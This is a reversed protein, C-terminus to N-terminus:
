GGLISAYEDPTSLVEVAKKVYPDTKLVVNEYVASEGYLRTLIDRKIGRKIFDINEDFDKKKEAKIKERINAFDAAYQDKTGNEETVKEMEELQTELRSKYSFDTDELFQRFEEVMENTVTFDAPINPHQTTYKISFDFFTSLRELNMELQNFEERDVTIDPTIGGGGYVIRGGKTHFIELESSDVPASELSELEEQSKIRVSNVDKQICRGSPVYWKATTLKLATGESLQYVQQVLGKGFTTNGIIVGRDSDQIAGAVIESASASMENVLVVMPVDPIEPIQTAYHDRNQDSNRGKTYVVETGQPLFDNAVKVAQNLLGGGNSRLDFILGDINEAKVQEIAEKLETDAEEGFRALRIYGIRKGDQEIVGSYPVMKITIVAREITYELPEDIGEREIKLRVKTGADGRMLKSAEVTNMGETTQGDIEVIRDGARLGQRYAPTGEMPAVVTVWGDKLFITMGLGSYKGSTTEMLHEFDKQELFESFPDLTEIMGRIGSHILDEIDPKDVYRANIKFAIDSALKVLSYISDGSSQAFAITFFAVILIITISASGIKLKRKM